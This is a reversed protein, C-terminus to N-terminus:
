GNSNWLVWLKCKVKAKRYCLWSVRKILYKLALRLLVDFYLFYQVLVWFLSTKTLQGIFRLVAAHLLHLISYQMTNYQISNYQITPILLQLPRKVNEFLKCIMQDYLM